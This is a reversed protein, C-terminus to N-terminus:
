WTKGGIVNVLNGSGADSIDTGCSLFTNGNGNCNDADPSLYLGTDNADGSMEVTNANLTSYDAYDLYMGYSVSTHDSNTMKISLGSVKCRDAKSAVNTGLLLAIPSLDSNCSLTISGGTITCSNEDDNGFNGIALAAPSTSTADSDSIEIINSSLVGNQTYILNQFTKGALLASSRIINDSVVLNKDWLSILANIVRNKSFVVGPMDISGSSNLVAIAQNAGGTDKFLCNDVVVGQTEVIWMANRGHYFDCGTVKLSGSGYYWYVGRDGSPSSDSELNFVINSLAIDASNYAIGGTGRIRIMNSDDGGSNGSTVTFNSFSIEKTLDQLIFGHDGPTNTIIVGGKSEGLFDISYDPFVIGGSYNAVGTELSLDYTGTKLKIAWGDAPVANLAAQIYKFHGAGDQPSLIYEKKTNNVLDSGSLATASENGYLDVAKIEIYVTARSTGATRMEAITLERTYENKETETWGSWSGADVKTRVSYHSFDSETNKGWAFVMGDEIATKTLGTPKAPVSNTVALDASATSKLNAEQNVAWVKVTFAASMSLGKTDLLTKYLGYDLTFSTGTPVTLSNIQTDEVYIEVWYRYATEEFSTGAGAVETGGYFRGAGSVVSTKNWSFVPNKADFVTQGPKGDIKLGTVTPPVFHDWTLAYTTYASGGARGYHNYATVRVIYTIGPYLGTVEIGAQGDKATIQTRYPVWNETELVAIFVTAYGFNLDAQPPNFSVLFGPKNLMDTASLDIVAGPVLLPHPLTTDRRAPLKVDTTDLYKGSNEEILGVTVASDGSRSLRAVKFSKADADPDGFTFVSDVPPVATFDGSASLVRTTGAANRVRRVELVGDTHRVRVKQTSATVTVDVNTTISSATADVIRGGQGWGLSDSQFLVTDGPECLVADMDADFEVAKKCLRACNLFYRSNRLVESTRAKGRANVTEKRVPKIATWEDDDIIEITEVSYDLSACAFQTEVVNPIESSRLYTTTLTEPKYNGPNFLMVPARYRDIVPKLANGSWIIMGRFNQSLLKYVEPAEMFSSLAIDLEFRHETGGNLDDVHHWCYRAETHAATDNLHKARVYEGTGYRKHTIFDRTCWIPNRTWQPTASLNGTDTVTSANSVLAYASASLDWYTDDYQIRAGGLRLDPITVTKGDSLINVAPRDGSLQENAKIKLGVVATNRYAITEYVIETVGELYTDGAAYFDDTFEDTLRTIRIDFQAPGGTLQGPPFIFYAKTKTKDELEMTGADQWSGSGTVQYEIKIEVTNYDTNGTSSSKFISPCSVQIQVEDILTGTTTYTYPTGKSIRSGDYYFTNTAQSFWGIPTQTQTGLRYDWEADEYNSLLQGDILIYPADNVSTCVGSLDSKLIGRIPGEGLSILMYLFSETASSTARKISINDLYVKVATSLQYEADNRSGYGPCRGYGKTLYFDVTVDSSNKEATVEFTFRKWARMAVAQTAGNDVTIGNDNDKWRIGIYIPGDHSVGASFYDTHVSVSVRYTAGAVVTIGGVMNLTNAPSGSPIIAYSSVLSINCRGFLYYIGNGFYNVGGGNYNFTNELVGDWGNGTDPDKTHYAESETACATNQPTMEDRTTLSTQGAGVYQMILNGGTMQRGYIVTVPGDPRDVLRPGDWSYNADSSTDLVPNQPLAPSSQGLLGGLSYGIMAGKAVAGWFAASSLIAAATYSYAAWTAYYGGGAVLAGVALGIGPGHLEPVIEIRDTPTLRYRHWAHAPILVKNVYVSVRKGRLRTVGFLARGLWHEATQREFLIEADLESKYFIIDAM